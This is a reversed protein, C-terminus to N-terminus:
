ATAADAAPAKAKAVRKKPAPKPPKAAERKELEATITPLIEGAAKQQAATGATELRQANAQLSKLDAETMAPIREDLTM